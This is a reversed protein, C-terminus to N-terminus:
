KEKAEFFINVYSLDTKYLCIINTVHWATLKCTKVCMMGGVFSNGCPVINKEYRAQESIQILPCISHLWWM